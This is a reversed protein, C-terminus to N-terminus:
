GRRDSRSHSDGYRDGGGYRSMIDIDLVFTLIVSISSIQRPSLPFPLVFCFVLYFTSGHACVGLVPVDFNNQEPFVFLSSSLFSPCIGFLSTSPRLFTAVLMQALSNYVNFRVVM